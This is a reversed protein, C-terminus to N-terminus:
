YGPNQPIGLDTGTLGKPIPFRYFHGDVNDYKKHLHTHIKVFFPYNTSSPYQNGPVAAGFTNVISAVDEYDDKFYEYASVTRVTQILKRWRTLNIWNRQEFFQELKYEKELADQTIESLLTIGARERILNVEGLGKDDTNLYFEAEAKYLLVDALRIEVRDINNPQGGYNEDGINVGADPAVEILNTRNVRHIWKAYRPSTFPFKFEYLQYDTAATPTSSKKEYV